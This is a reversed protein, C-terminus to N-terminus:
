AFNPALQDTSTFDELSEEQHFGLGMLVPSFVTKFLNFLGAQDHLHCDEFTM